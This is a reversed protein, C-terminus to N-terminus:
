GVHVDTARDFRRELILSMLSEAMTELELLEPTTLSRPKSDLVCLTGLHLSRVYSLPAGAYFRVYPSSVVFPLRRFRPDHKADSVLLVGDTRLVHGCFSDRIHALGFDAGAAAAAVLRDGAAITVMAMPMDFREMAARCMDSFEHPAPRALLDCRVLAQLRERGVDIDNYQITM